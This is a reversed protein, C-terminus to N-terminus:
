LPYLEYLFYYKHECIKSRLKGCDMHLSLLSNIYFRVSRVHCTKRGTNMRGLSQTIFGPSYILYLCRLIVAAPRLRLSHRMLSVFEVAAELCSVAQSLLMQLTIELKLIGHLSVIPYTLGACNLHVTHQGCRARLGLAQPRSKVQKSWALEWGKCKRWLLGQKEVTTFAPVPLHSFTARETAGNEACKELQLQGLNNIKLGTNHQRDLLWSHTVAFRRLSM